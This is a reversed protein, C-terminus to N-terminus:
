FLRREFELEDRIPVGDIGFVPIEPKLRRALAVAEEHVAVRVYGRGAYFRMAPFNDNTTVLWIRQCARARALKEAATLLATGIGRRECLSHLLVIELSLPPPTCHFAYLLIGLRVAGNAAVLGPLLDARHVQGRTVMVPSGWHQPLFSRLWARDGPALGRLAFARTGHAVDGDTNM